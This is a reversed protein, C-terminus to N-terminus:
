GESQERELAAVAQEHARRALDLAQRAAHLGREREAVVSAAEGVAAGAEQAVGRLRAVEAEHQKRRATEEARSGSAIPVAASAALLASMSFSDEDGTGADLDTLVGRQLADIFESTLPGQLASEIDRLPADAGRGSADIVARASEIVAALAHRREALADRLTERQGGGLVEDQAVRAREVSTLLSEITSGDHRAVQNLAWASVSPRRLVKVQAAKEREGAARLEKALQDRAAVFSKPDEEYLAEVDM